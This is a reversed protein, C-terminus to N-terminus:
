SPYATNQDRPRNSADCDAYFGVPLIHFAPPASAERLTWGIATFATGWWIVLLAIIVPFSHPIADLRSWDRAALLVAWAYNVSLMMILSVVALYEYPWKPPMSPVVFLYAAWLTILGLGILLRFGELARCQIANWRRPYLPRVGTSEQRFFIATRMLFGAGVVVILGILSFQTSLDLEAHHM